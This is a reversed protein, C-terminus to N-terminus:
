IATVSMVSPPLPAHSIDREPGLRSDNVPGEEEEEEEEGVGVSKVTVGPLSTVM